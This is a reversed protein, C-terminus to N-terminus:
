INRRKFYVNIALQYIALYKFLKYSTKPLLIVIQVYFWNLFWIITSEKWFIAVDKLFPFSFDKLM